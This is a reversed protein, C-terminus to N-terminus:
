RAWISNDAMPGSDKRRAEVRSMRCDIGYLRAILARDREVTRVGVSLQGAIEEVSKGDALESAVIAGRHARLEPERVGRGVYYTRLVDFVCAIGTVNADPRSWKLEWKWMSLQFDRIVEDVAM